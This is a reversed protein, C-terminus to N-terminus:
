RGVHLWIALNCVLPKQFFKTRENRKRKVKSKFQFFKLPSLRHKGVGGSLVMEVRVVHRMPAGQHGQHIDAHRACGSANVGLKAHHRDLHLASKEAWCAALEFGLTLQQVAGCFHGVHFGLDIIGLLNQTGMSRAGKTIHCRSSMNRYQIAM